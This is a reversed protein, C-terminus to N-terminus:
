VEETFKDRLGVRTEETHHDVGVLVQGDVALLDDVHVLALLPVLHGGVDVGDCVRGVPAHHLTGTGSPQLLRYVHSHIICKSTNKQDKRRLDLPGTWGRCTPEEGKIEKQRRSHVPTNTLPMAM